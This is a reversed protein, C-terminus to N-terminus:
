EEEEYVFVEDWCNDCVHWGSRLGILQERYASDFEPEPFVEQVMAGRLYKDKRVTCVRVTQSTSCVNCTLTYDQETTLNGNTM